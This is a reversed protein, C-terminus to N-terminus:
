SATLQRGNNGTVGPKLLLETWSTTVQRLRKLHCPTTFLDLLKEQLVSKCWFYRNFAINWQM